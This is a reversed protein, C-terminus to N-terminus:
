AVPQAVPVPPEEPKTSPADGFDLRGQQYREYAKVIRQVLDHRVVDKENFYVFSIGDVEHLVDVVELLGSRKGAPLDIQTVDGTIIAKSAFGLRTIFMKM